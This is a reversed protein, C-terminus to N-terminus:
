ISAAFRSELFAAVQATASRNTQEIQNALAALALRLSARPRETACIYSALPEIVQQLENSAYLNTSRNLSQM